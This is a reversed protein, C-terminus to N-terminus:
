EQWFWKALERHADASSRGIDHLGEEGFRALDARQRIRVRWVQFLARARSLRHARRRRVPWHLSVQFDTLMPHAQPAMLAEEISNGHLSFHASEPLNSLPYNTLCQM